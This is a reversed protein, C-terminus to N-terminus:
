NKTKGPAEDVDLSELQEISQEREATQLGEIFEDLLAGTMMVDVGFRALRRIDFSAM